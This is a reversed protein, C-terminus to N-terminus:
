MGNMGGGMGGTMGGMGGGMGGGTMGGNMGGMGGNMGGMMGGMMANDNEPAECTANTWYLIEGTRDSRVATYTDVNCTTAQAGAPADQALVPAATAMMLAFISIAKM